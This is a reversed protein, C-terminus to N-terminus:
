SFSFFITYKFLKRIKEASFTPTLFGSRRKVTPDPHFFKPFYMIPIDYLKLWTNKYNITKSEKDHIIEEATMLWPPCGDTKKCNTYVAKKVTSFNKDNSISRGKM